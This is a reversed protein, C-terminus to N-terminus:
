VFPFFDARVSIAAAAAYAAKKDIGWNRFKM